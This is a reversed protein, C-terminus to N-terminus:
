NNNNIYNTYLKISGEITEAGKYLLITGTHNVQKNIKEIRYKNVNYKKKVIKGYQEKIETIIKNGDLSELNNSSAWLIETTEKNYIFM